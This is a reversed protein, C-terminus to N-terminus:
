CETLAQKKNRTAIYCLVTSLALHFFLSALPAKESCCQLFFPVKKAVSARERLSQHLEIPSRTHPLFSRKQVQWMLWTLTVCNKFFFLTHIKAFFTFRSDTLYYHCYRQLIQKLTFRKSRRRKNEGEGRVWVNRGWKMYRVRVTDERGGIGVGSWM